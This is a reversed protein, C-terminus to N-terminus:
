VAATRNQGAIDVTEAFGQVKNHLRRHPGTAGRARDAYM